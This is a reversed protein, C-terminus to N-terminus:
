LYNQMYNSFSTRHSASSNNNNSNGNSKDKNTHRHIRIHQNLNDSRSFRKSCSHYPCEFPKELTHISRIHRKLHESRKFVKGCDDHTCTFMKQGAAAPNSSVRRGRSRTQKAKGGAAAPTSSAPAAPAAPSASSSESSASTSSSRTRPEGDDSGSSSSSAPPMVATPAATLAAADMVYSSSSLPHTYFQQPFGYAQSGAMSAMLGASFWDGPVHLPPTELYPSYLEAAAGIGSGSSCRRKEDLPHPQHQQQYFVYDEYDNTPSPTLQETDSLSAESNSSLLEAYSFRRMYDFSSNDQRYLGLDLTATTTSSPFGCDGAVTAADFSPQQSAVHIQPPSYM